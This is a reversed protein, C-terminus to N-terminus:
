SIQILIKRLYKKLEQVYRPAFYKKGKIFVISKNNIKKLLNITNKKM